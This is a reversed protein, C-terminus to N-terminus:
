NPWLAAELTKRAGDPLTWGECVTEIAKRLRDRESTLENARLWDRSVFRGMSNTTGYAGCGSCRETM